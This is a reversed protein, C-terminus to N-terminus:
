PRGIAELAQEPVLRLIEFIILAAVFLVFLVILIILVKPLQLAGLM